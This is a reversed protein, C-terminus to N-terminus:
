YRAILSMTIPFVTMHKGGLLYESITNQKGEVFGYYLGIVMSIGLMLVFASCEVLWNLREM